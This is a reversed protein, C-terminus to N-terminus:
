DHNCEIYDADPDIRPQQLFELNRGIFQGQFCGVYLIVQFKGADAVIQVLNFGYGEIDIGLKGSSIDGVIVGGDLVDAEPIM